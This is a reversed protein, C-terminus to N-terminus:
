GGVSVGVCCVRRCAKRASPPLLALASGVGCGWGAPLLGTSRAAAVLLAALALAAALLAGGGSRVARLFHALENSAHNCLPDFRDHSCLHAAIRTRVTSYLIFVLKGYGEGPRIRTFEILRVNKVLHPRDYM